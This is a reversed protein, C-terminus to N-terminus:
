AAETLEGPPPRAYKQLVAGPCGCGITEMSKLISDVTDESICSKLPGLSIACFYLAIEAPKVFVRGELSEM